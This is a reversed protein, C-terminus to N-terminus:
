RSAPSSQWITDLCSEWAVACSLPESKSLSDLYADPLILRLFGARRMAATGLNARLGYWALDWSFRAGETGRSFTCLLALSRVRSPARCAIEQAVLGGMSHGVLHFRDIHEAALIALADDAMAEISLPANLSLKSAGIGRNDFTVLTFRDTLAEVQPRWGEGVVGCGQILLVAPGSGTKSYALTGSSTELQPM